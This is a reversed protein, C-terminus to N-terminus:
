GQHGAVIGRLKNVDGLVSTIFDITANIILNNRIKQDLRNGLDNLESAIADDMPKVTTGAAKLHANVARLQTRENKARSLQILRETEKSTPLGVIKELRDISQNCAEIATKNKEIVAAKSFQVSMLQAGEAM